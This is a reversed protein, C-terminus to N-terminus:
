PVKPSPAVPLVVRVRTGKGVASEVFLAGKHKRVIGIVASLGLGSGTFKTSFFPDLIRVLVTPEIGCGSDAIELVLYEGCPLSPAFAARAFDNADFHEARTVIRVVGGEPGLSELANRVLSQTVQVVAGQDALLAPLERALDRELKVHAEPATGLGELAERVTDSLHIRRVASINSGAYSLMQQCLMTARSSAQLIREMQRALASGQAASMSALEASGIISTLLNNFDHAIGGALVGLSELRQVEQVRHELSRREENARVRLTVDEIGHLLGVRTNSDDVIPRVVCRLTRGDSVRFERELATGHGLRRCAQEFENWLEADLVLGAIHQYLESAALRGQRLPEELAGLALVELLPANFRLVRGFGDESVFLGAPLSDITAKLLAERRRLEHLAERERTVDRLTALAARPKGEARPLLRSSVQIWALDGAARHVGMLVSAQAAGTRLTVMAPHEEFPFPTGDARVCRWRPDLEARRSLQEGTLGLIREASPNWFVVAGSEEQVVLGEGMADLTTRLDEVTALPQLGDVDMASM